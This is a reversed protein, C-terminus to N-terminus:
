MVEKEVLSIIRGPGWRAVLRRIVREVDHTASDSTNDFQTMWKIHAPELCGGNHCTHAAQYEPSPRPGEHEVCLHYAVTRSLGNFGLHPRIGSPYRPNGGRGGEWGVLCGQPTRIPNPMFWDIAEQLTQGRPRYTKTSM